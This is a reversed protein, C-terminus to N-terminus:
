PLLYSQGETMPLFNRNLVMRMSTTPHDKYCLSFDSSMSVERSTCLRCFELCYHNNDLMVREEETKYSVEKLRNFAVAQDDKHKSPSLSYFLSLFM